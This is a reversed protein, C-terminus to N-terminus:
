DYKYFLKDSDKESCVQLVCHQFPPQCLNLTLSHSKVGRRRMDVTQRWREWEQSPSRPCSFERNDLYSWGDNSINTDLLVKSPDKM